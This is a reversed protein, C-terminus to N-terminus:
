EFADLRLALPEGSADVLMEARVSDGADEPDVPLGLTALMAGPVDAEVLRPSPEREIREITDLAVFAGGEDFRLLPAGTFGDGALRPPLLLLALVAAGLAGTAATASWELVGLRRYWPRRAFRANFAQMLEKEVCRPSDVRALADRLGALRVDLEDPLDHPPQTTNM